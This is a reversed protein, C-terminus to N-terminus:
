GGRGGRRSGPARHRAEIIPWLNRLEVRYDGGERQATLRGSRIMRRLHEPHFGLIAAAARTGLLLSDLDVDERGPRGMTAITIAKLRDAALAAHGVDGTRAAAALDTGMRRRLADVRM